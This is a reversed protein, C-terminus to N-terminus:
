SNVLKATNPTELLLCSKEYIMLEFLLDRVYIQRNM